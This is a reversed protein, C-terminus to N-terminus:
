CIDEPLTYFLDTGTFDRVYFSPQEMYFTDYLRLSPSFVRIYFDELRVYFEVFLDTPAFARIYFDEGRVYFTDYLSSGATFSRIYFDEDRVYFTDYAEHDPSFGEDDTWQACGYQAEEPVVDIDEPDILLEEVNSTERVHQTDPLAWSSGDFPPELTDQQILYCGVYFAM